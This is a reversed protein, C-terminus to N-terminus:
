TNAPPSHPSSTWNISRATAPRPVASRGGPAGNWDGDGWTAAQGTLYKGAIQVKVLDLQDFDLDQDADGAQLAVGGLGLASKLGENMLKLLDEEELAVNFLGVDDILGYVPQTGNSRDGILVSADSQDGPGFAQEAEFEGDVFAQLIEGDYSAAAFHWEDDHVLTTSVCNSWAAETLPRPM